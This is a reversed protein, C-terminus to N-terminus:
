IKVNWIKDGVRGGATWDGISQEVYLVEEGDGPRSSSQEGM